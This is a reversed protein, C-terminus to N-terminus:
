FEWNIAICKEIYIKVYKIGNLMKAFDTFSNILFSILRVSTLSLFSVIKWGKNEM